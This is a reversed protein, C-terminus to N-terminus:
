GQRLKENFIETKRLHLAAIDLGYTPTQGAYAAIRERGGTVLLLHAYLERTWFWGLGAEQFAENFATRHLEETEALTGDVDFILGRLTM